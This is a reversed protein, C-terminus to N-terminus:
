MDQWLILGDELQDVLEMTHIQINELHQHATKSTHSLKRVPLGLMSSPLAFLPHMTQGPTYLSTHTHTHKLFFFFSPSLFLLFFVTLPTSLHTHCIERHTEEPMLITTSGAHHHVM